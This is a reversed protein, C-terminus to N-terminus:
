LGDLDRRRAHEGRRRQARGGRACRRVPAGGQNRDRSQSQRRRRAARGQPPDRHRDVRGEPHQWRAHRRDRQALNGVEEAVVAFGKGHEGARAAEVSANFSLLQTKFVIDNIVKTKTGIETIVKVIETIQRNSEEIHTMIRNNSADIEGIASVMQEVAHKGKTAVSHSALASERSNVANEASKKTMASLEEISSATEQLASAQETAGQALNQSASSINQAAARVQVAEENLEGIVREFSLSVGRVIWFGFLAGMALLLVAAAILRFNADMASDRLPVQVAAYWGRSPYSSYGKSPAFAELVAGSFTASRYETERLTSATAASAKQSEFNERTKKLEFEAGQPHLLYQGKADVIFPFVEKIRDSKMKATEEKTIAEVVDAWSMRNTWVGLLANTKKDRIPATFNMVRGTGGLAKAVDSDVHLDEVFSNGAKVEGSAAAKFWPEASYDKGNMFSVDIPKGNKDVGNVAVVKGRANTVIMLDYIPAYAAMMDAMFDVIRDHSGSRAPESLAFAQVDGYREFLNRDIKDILSETAARVQAEKGNRLADSSQGAMVAFLGLAVVSVLGLVGLLKVKISLNKFM